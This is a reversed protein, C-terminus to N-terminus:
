GRKTDYLNSCMMACVALNQGIEVSQYVGVTSSKLEKAHYRGRDTVDILTKLFILLFKCRTTINVQKFKKIIEESIILM